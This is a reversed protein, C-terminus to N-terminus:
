PIAVASLGPLTVTVAVRPVITHVVPNVTVAAARTLMSTVGAAAVMRMPAISRYVAM